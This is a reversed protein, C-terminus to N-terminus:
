VSPSVAMDPLFLPFRATPQARAKIRLTGIPQGIMALHFHGDTLGLGTFTLTSSGGTLQALTLRSPTCPPYSHQWTKRQAKKCTQLHPPLHLCGARPEPTHGGERVDSGGDCPPPFRGRRASV